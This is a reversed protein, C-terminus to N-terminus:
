LRIEMENGKIKFGIRQYLPIAKEEAAALVENVGLEKAKELLFCLLEKMHGHGKYKPLTFVSFLTACKGSVNIEDPMVSYICLMAKGIVGEENEMLICLCSGDNMHSHLYERIANPLNTPLHDAVEKLMEMRLTLIVDIDDPTAVRLKM